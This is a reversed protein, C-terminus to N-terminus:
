APQSAGLGPKAAPAHTRPKAMQDRVWQEVEARVWVARRAFGDSRTPGLGVAAPFHGAGMWAYLTSVCTCTVQLVEARTMFPCPTTEPANQASM